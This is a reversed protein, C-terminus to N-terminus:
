TMDIFYLSGTDGTLLTFRFGEKKRKGCTMM